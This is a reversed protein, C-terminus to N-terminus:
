PGQTALLGPGGGAGLNGLAPAISTGQERWAVMPRGEVAVAFSQM